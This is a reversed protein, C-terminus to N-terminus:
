SLGIQKMAWATLAQTAVNEIMKLPATALKEPGFASKVKQWTGDDTLLAGAFEHGSWTLDQIAIREYQDSLTTFRIGRIYGAEHLLAVHRGVEDPDVGDIQLYNPKADTREQIAKLIKRVVEMDRKVEGGQKEVHALKARAVHIAVNVPCALM